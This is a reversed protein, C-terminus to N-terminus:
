RLPDLRQEKGLALVAQDVLWLTVEGSLAHGDPDKLHITVDVEQGPLARDLYELEVDLQNARPRVTIWSTAALTAPKGLDVSSGPIPQTGPVRGRMLVFHVPVRPTWTGMLPLQYSANGGRVSLWQYRNGEPAEVIVLVQAQQFPSELIFTAVDDPNYADSDTTVNFVQAVPKPWSVPEDGGAYLDVAVVQTRGISDRAEIEVVYVGATSIPLTTAVPEDSSTIETTFVEEDVIDTIYRAEGNSFDSARLYSHWQRHLL